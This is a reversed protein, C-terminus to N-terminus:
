EWLAFLLNGHDITDLAELLDFPILLSANAKDGERELEDTGGWFVPRFYLQFPAMYYTVGLLDQLEVAM